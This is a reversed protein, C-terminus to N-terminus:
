RPCCRRPPLIHTINPRIVPIVLIIVRSHSTRTIDDLDLEIIEDYSRM